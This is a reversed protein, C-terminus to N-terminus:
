WRFGILLNSELYEKYDNSIKLNEHTIGSKSAEILIIGGISAAYQDQIGVNENIINQEIDIAIKAIDESKSYNFNNM